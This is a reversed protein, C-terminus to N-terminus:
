KGEGESPGPPDKGVIKVKSAAFDFVKGELLSFRLEDLRGEEKFEARIKPLPQSREEAMRVLEADVEADKVELGAHRAVEAVFFHHHMMERATKDAREAFGKQATEDPGDGGMAALAGQLRMQMATSQREVLGQPLDMPNKALLAAMLEGRFREEERKKVVDLIHREIDARLESLTGFESVDKALEDDLPPLRRGKVGTVRVMYRVRDKDLETSSGMDVVKEEGVSLGVVADEIAKIMRGEGPVIEQAPWPADKWEGDMWRKMEIRVQDGVAAPRPSELEFVEAAASRLRETEQDVDKPDVAVRHRAVEVDDWAIQELRPRLEVRAKFVYPADAVLDAADVSPSAVPELGHEELAKVLHSATLDGRVEALVAPGYLRVLIARPVKGKRFGRVVAHRALQSYAREVAGKVEDKSVEVSVEALVSGLRNVTSTM